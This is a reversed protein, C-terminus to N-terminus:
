NILSTIYICIIMMLFLLVLIYKNQNHAWIENTPSFFFVTSDYIFARCLPCSNNNQVWLDLCKYHFYHNCITKKQHKKGIKELCISCLNLSKYYKRQKKKNM